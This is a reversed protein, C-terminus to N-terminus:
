GHRLSNMAAKDQASLKLKSSKSYCFAPCKQIQGGSNIYAIIDDQLQKRLEDKSEKTAKSKDVGYHKKNNITFSSM